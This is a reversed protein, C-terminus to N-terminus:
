VRSAGEPDWADLVPCAVQRFRQNRLTSAFTHGEMTRWRPLGTSTVIDQPPYQTVESAQADAIIGM